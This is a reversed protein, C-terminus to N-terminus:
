SLAICLYKILPSFFPVCYLKTYVNGALLKRQFAHGEDDRVYSQAYGCVYRREHQDYHEHGHDRDDHHIYHIYFFFSYTLLYKTIHVTLRAHNPTVRFTNPLENFTPM